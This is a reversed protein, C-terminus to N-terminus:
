NLLAKKIYGNPDQTDLQLYLQIQDDGHNPQNIFGYGWFFYSNPHIGYTNYIDEGKKIDKLASMIFSGKSSDYTWKCSPKRNHNLMDAYPTLAHTKVGNITVAFVRSTVVKIMEM